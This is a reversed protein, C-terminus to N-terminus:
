STQHSPIWLSQFCAIQPLVDLCKYVFGNISPIVLYLLRSNRTVAIVFARYYVPLKVCRACLTGPSVNKIRMMM